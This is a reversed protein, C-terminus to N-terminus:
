QSSVTLLTRDHSLKENVVIPSPRFPLYSTLQESHSCARQDQSVFGGPMRKPLTQRTMDQSNVISGGRCRIIAVPLQEQKAEAGEEGGEVAEDELARDKLRLSQAAEVSDM